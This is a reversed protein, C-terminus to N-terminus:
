KKNIAEAILSAQRKQASINSWKWLAVAIGNLILFGGWTVIQRATDQIEASGGVALWLLSLVILMCAFIKRM